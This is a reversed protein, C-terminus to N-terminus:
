QHLLYIFSLLFFFVPIVLEANFSNPCNSYKQKSGSHHLRHFLIQFMSVLSHGKDGPVASFTLSKNIGMLNRFISGTIPVANVKFTLSNFYSQPQLNKRFSCQMAVFTAYESYILFRCMKDGFKVTFLLIIIKRKLLIGATCGYLYAIIARCCHM